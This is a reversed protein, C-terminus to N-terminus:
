PQNAEDLMPDTVRADDAQDLFPQLRADQLIPDNRRTVLPGRLPRHDRRQQGVDVQVVDEIQPGVAPSLSACTM